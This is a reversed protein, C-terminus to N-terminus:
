GLYQESASFSSPPYYRGHLGTPSGAGRLSVPAQCCVDPSELVDLVRVSSCSWQFDALWIIHLFLKVEGVQLSFLLM